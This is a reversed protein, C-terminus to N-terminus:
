EYWRDEDRVTVVVQAEPYAAILEDPFTSAPIDLCADFGALVREFDAREWTTANAQEEGLKADLAERWILSDPPNEMLSFGHYPGFGLEALAIRLSVTGTRSLGLCLVRM